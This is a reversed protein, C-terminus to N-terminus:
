SGRVLAFKNVKVYLVELDRETVENPINQAERWAVLFARLWKLQLDKDPYLSYDVVEIGAFEAFHNGIDFAQYNFSAYEYDIFKLTGALSPPHCLFVLNILFAFKLM